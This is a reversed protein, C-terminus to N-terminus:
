EGIRPWRQVQVIADNLHHVSFRDAGLLTPRARPSEEDPRRRNQDDPQDAINSLRDRFQTAHLHFRHASQPHCRRITL